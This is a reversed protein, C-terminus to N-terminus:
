LPLPGLAVASECLETTTLRNGHKITPPKAISSSIPLPGSAVATECLETTTMRNEPKMTPSIAIGTSRPSKPTSNVRENTYIDDQLNDDIGFLADLTSVRDGHMLPAPKSLLDNIIADMTSVRSQQSLPQPIPSIKEASQLYSDPGPSLRIQETNEQLTKLEKNLVDDDFCGALYEKKLRNSTASQDRNLAARKVQSPKTEYNENQHSTDRKVITPRPIQNNESTVAEAHQTSNKSGFRATGTLELNNQFKPWSSKKAKEM